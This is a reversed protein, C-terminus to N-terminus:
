GLATKGSRGQEVWPGIFQDEVVHLQSPFLRKIHGLYGVDVTAILLGMQNGFRLM